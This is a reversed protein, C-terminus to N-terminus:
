NYSVQSAAAVELVFPLTQPIEIWFIQRQLFTQLALPIEGRWKYSTVCFRQWRVITDFLDINHWRCILQLWYYVWFSSITFWQCVSFVIPALPTLYKEKWPGGNQFNTSAIGIIQWKLVAPDVNLQFLKGLLIHHDLSDCAKFFFCVSGQWWGLMACHLGCGGSSHGWDIQWLLLCGPTSSSSFTTRFLWKVSCICDKGFKKALVPVVSIPRFNGPNPQDVRPTIHSRKWESPFVGAKLSENFLKTIPDAIESSISRFIQSFFRWARYVKQM